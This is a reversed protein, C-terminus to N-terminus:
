PKHCVLQPGISQQRHPCPRVKPRRLCGLMMMMLLLVLLILLPWM